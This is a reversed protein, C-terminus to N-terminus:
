DLRYRRLVNLASKFGIRVIRELIYPNLSFHDVFFMEYDQPRPHIYVYDVDPRYNVKQRIIELVRERHEEPLSKDKFYRDIEKYIQRLNTQWEINRSIKQEIVQYLAQNIIVPIGYTHLSGMEETYHYPQVSYSSIVLDCGHDAAVHASLTERIEGDYYFLEKHENEKIGYPAFVPPLATSAAVAESISANNVYKTTPTKYNEQFNGFIAKRTHNLQTAIVYLEVGLRSFDNDILAEQRLYKEIGRTTFLGNLKFGNKLFAEIGGRVLSRRLLADPLIRFIRSSNVNFIHKYLLPTLFHLDGEEFSPNEGSGLRFANVLSEPEYGGALIASIFAGASSGVYVRFTLPLEASFKQRVTEKTGGAFRFGKEKLALCVGIHFAAAKIGGGSLVLGLKKKEQINM